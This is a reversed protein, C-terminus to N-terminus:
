TKLSETNASSAQETRKQQIFNHNSCRGKKSTHHDIDIQDQTFNDIKTINALHNENKMTPIENLETM